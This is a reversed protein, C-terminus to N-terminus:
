VMGVHGLLLLACVVYTVKILGGQAHIVNQTSRWCLDDMIPRVYQM